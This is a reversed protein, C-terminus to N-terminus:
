SFLLKKGTMIKESKTENNIISRVIDKNKELEEGNMNNLKSILKSLCLLREKKVNIM